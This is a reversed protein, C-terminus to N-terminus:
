LGVGPDLRKRVMARIRDWLPHLTVPQAEALEFFTSLMASARAMHTGRLKGSDRAELLRQENEQFKEPVMVQERRLMAASLLAMSTLERRMLQAGYKSYVARDLVVVDDAPVSLEKAEVIFHSMDSEATRELTLGDETRPTWTQADDGDKRRVFALAVSGDLARGDEGHPMGLVILADCDMVYTKRFTLKYSEGGRVCRARLNELRGKWNEEAAGFMLREPQKLLAAYRDPWLNRLLFVPVNFMVMAPFVDGVLGTQELRRQLARQYDGENAELWERSPPYSISHFIM